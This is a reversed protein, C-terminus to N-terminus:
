KGFLVMYSDGLQKILSTQVGGVFKLGDPSFAGLGCWRPAHASEKHGRGNFFTLQEKHTGDANMQWWDTGRMGGGANTMWVIHKGDPSYCAHENYNKETLQRINGGTKADCTFIQSTWFSKQNYDSCFVISQDDPTFGYSENFAKVGGPRLTKINSLEPKGEADTFDAVKLNWLACFAKPNLLRARDIRQAWVVQKGDHSFKPIIIGVNQDLPLDTLQWASCGDPTTIWLDTYSGIGPTCQAHGGPHQKKEAAFLIYRGSPHWCPTGKHGPPLRLNDKSIWIDDLGSASCTHLGYLNDAGRSAYVIKDTSRCWDVEDGGAKFLKIAAINVGSANVSQANSAITIVITLCFILVAKWIFIFLSRAICFHIDDLM